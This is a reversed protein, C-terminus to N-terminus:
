MLTGGCWTCVTDITKGDSGECVGNPHVIGVPQSVRIDTTCEIEGNDLVKQKNVGEEMSFSCGNIEIKLYTDERIEDPLFMMDLVESLKATLKGTNPDGQM